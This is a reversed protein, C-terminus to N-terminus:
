RKEPTEEEYVVDPPVKEGRKALADRALVRIPYQHIVTRQEGAIRYSTDRLPHTLFDRLLATDDSNKWSDLVTLSNFLDYAPQRGGEKVTPKAVEAALYARIPERFEKPPAEGDSSLVTAVDGPAHRACAVWFKLEAEPWGKRDRKLLWIVDIHDDAPREGAWELLEKRRGHTSLALAAWRWASPNSSLFLKKREEDTLKEWGVTKSLLVSAAFPKEADPGKAAVTRCHDLLKAKTADSLWLPREKWEDYAYNFGQRSYGDRTKGFLEEQFLCWALVRHADPWAFGKMPNGESEGLLSAVCSDLLRQHDRVKPWDALLKEVTKAATAAAPDGKEKRLREAIKEVEPRLYGDGYHHLLMAAAAQQKLTHPELGRMRLRGGDEGGVLASHLPAPVRSGIQILARGKGAELVASPYPYRTTELRWAEAKTKRDLAIVGVSHRYYILSEGESAKARSGRGDPWPSKVEVEKVPVDTLTDVEPLEAKAKDLNLLYEVAEKEAKTADAPVEATRWAEWVVKGTRTDVAAVGVDDRPGWSDALAFTPVSFVTGAAILLLQIRTM